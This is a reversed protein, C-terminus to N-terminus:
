EAPRSRLGAIPATQKAERWFLFRALAPSVIIAGLMSFLFMVTLLLGLDAQFQLPSFVWTAVSASLTAGVFMEPTERLARAYADQFPLNMKQLRLFRAFLYIGYDVGIGVGLAAVPLTAVKLGIGLLVMAADALATVLVLPLLVCIAARWSWLSLLCLVGVSAYVGVLMPWEAAVVTQNTAATVALPGAALQFAPFGPYTASFTNVADLLRAVTAARHDAAFAYVPMVSCDANRLGSSPPVFDVSLTMMGPGRQLALLKPNGEAWAANLQKVVSPLSVVSRVGPTNALVWDLRDIRRMPEYEYCDNPKGVALVALIDSSLDFRSVIARTDANYRSSPRLESAGETTDGVIRHRAIATAGIGLLLAACLVGAAVPLRTVGSLLRFLRWSVGSEPHSPRVRLRAPIALFSLLLPLIMLQCVIVALIGASATLAIDHIVGVPILLLTAFGVLDAVLAAVGPRVLLTLSDRAAAEPSAGALQAYSHRNVIQIGHSVAIAFILFPVIDSLPSIGTGSLAVAGLQWVVAVLSTALLAATFAWSRTYLRVLAATVLLSIAFFLAVFRAGAAIAGILPAYGIIEIEVSGTEHRARIAGLDAAVRVFDTPAGTANDRDQLEGTVLAATADNAVLSGILDGRSVNRRVLDAGEPTPTYAQPIIPQSELGGEVAQTYRVNPTWLSRVSTRDMGRLFFMEDTVQRLTELFAPDYITGQRTRVAVTVRNAGTVLGDYRLLTQIYPHQLPVQNAFSADVRIGTAALALALTLAAWLALGARRWRFLGAIV